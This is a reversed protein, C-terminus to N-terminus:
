SPNEKGAPEPRRLESALHHTLPHGTAAMAMTILLVGGHLRFTRGVATVEKASSTLGVSRSSLRIELTGDAATDVSGEDVEVIGTPQAVVLEVRGTGAPRLYGSEIHLARGDAAHRTRQAYILFPKGVHEFRLTEIYDFSEISPYSGHGAGSWEGLLPALEAVDPHLMPAPEFHDGLRHGHGEPLQGELLGALATPNPNTAM